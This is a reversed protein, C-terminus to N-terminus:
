FTEETSEKETVSDAVEGIRKRNIITFSECVIETNNREKGDKDTWKRYKIKGELFIRDGKKLESKEASEAVKRWMIIQHWETQEKKNGSKDKFVESTALQFNAVTVGNDLKKIEPNQGVNGLLLIKNVGSAM